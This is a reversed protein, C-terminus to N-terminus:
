CGAAKIAGQRNKLVGFSQFSQIDTIANPVMAPDIATIAFLFLIPPTPPTIYIADLM